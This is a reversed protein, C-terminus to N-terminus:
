TLSEMLSLIEKSLSNPPYCVHVNFDGVLSFRYNKTTILKFRVRYKLPNLTSPPPTSCAAGGLVQARISKSNPCLLLMKNKFTKLLFYSIVKFSTANYVCSAHLTGIFWSSSDRLKCFYSNVKTKRYDTQMIKFLSCSRQEFQFIGLQLVNKM